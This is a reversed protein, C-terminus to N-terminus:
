SKKARALIVVTKPGSLVNQGENNERFPDAGNERLKSLVARRKEESAIDGISVAFHHFPTDGDSDRVHIVEEFSSVGCIRALVDGSKYNSHAL